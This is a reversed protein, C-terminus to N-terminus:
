GYHKEQNVLKILENTADVCTTIKGSFLSYINYPSKEKRVLTPRADDHERDRLVTRFTYMSGIHELKDFDEFFKMGTEIFKKINTVKPNKIVGDNLYKRLTRSKVIPKPGINTEHIAHVVNGLVHYGTDGYPDLCMFPGDMVVISKNSYEEPLKVVPKECLEFQYDQKKRLYQNINAYTALVVLDYNKFDVWDAESNLELDIGNGYLKDKVLERLTNNNFLKENVEVTLDTNPLPDVKTYKLKHYDLFKLYESPTVLSDESAICYLHQINGNMISRDYKREFTKTGELCSEATENSRPYHFGKHIRYQNIDSAGKMVDDLKETLRVNYGSNKLGVAATTGFIGGGVVLAKPYLKKRVAESIKIANLTSNRNGGIMEYDYIVANLMDKLANNESKKVNEGNIKHITKGSRSYDFDAYLGGYLSVTFMDPVSNWKLDWSVSKVEVDDRDQTWLYFHHYALRDIFNTNDSKSWQFRVPMFPWSNLDDRWRFVDDVYLAVRQSDALEFLEKASEYSLTLPKECFVNKKQNLWYKVQDYHLDNPTALFIWEADKPEVFDTQIVELLTRELVLGWKGRGILSVKPKM